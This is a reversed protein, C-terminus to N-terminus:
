LLLFSYKNKNNFYKRMANIRATIQANMVRLMLKSESKNVTIILPDMAAIIDFIEPYEAAYKQAISLTSDKSGDNVVIVQVRNRFRDDSFSTLCKNIYNEVNYCAVAVSLVPEM